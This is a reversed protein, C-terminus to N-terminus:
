AAGGAVSAIQADISAELEKWHDADIAGGTPTTAIQTDISALDRSDPPSQAIHVHLESKTIYNRIM